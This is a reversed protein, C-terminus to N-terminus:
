QPEVAAQAPLRIRGAEDGGRGFGGLRARYAHGGGRGPQLTRARKLVQMGDVDPMRLDTIVLDFEANELKGIAERGDTAQTVNHGEDELVEALFEAYAM